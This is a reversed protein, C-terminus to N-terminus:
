AETFLAAAGKAEAEKFQEEAEIAHQSNKQGYVKLAFQIFSPHETNTLVYTAEGTHIVGSGTQERTRFNIPYLGPDGSPYHDPSLVSKAKDQFYAQKEDKNLPIAGNAAGVYKYVYGFRPSISPISM